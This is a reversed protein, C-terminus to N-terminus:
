ISHMIHYKELEKHSHIHGHRSDGTYHNHSHSHVITHTHTVGDHTHTFTHSHEHTHSYGLTDRVAFVAGATMVAFAVAYNLSLKEGLIVFSLFASIFPSLAYYASTKSAGLIKQAKIYTFISLGYATFGLLLAFPVYSLSSIREGKALAVALSGLGSFIGKVTVIQYASKESISRTCNNELGWCVTAGIVLFSGKSFELSGKGEFSLIISSLTILGVAVWLKGSVKEGFLLLAIVTTAVIEFNGLLSASSSSSMTIGFMLLVPALVDLVVMGVTYPLDKRDLREEAKEKPRHFIYMIGVGIGAGLYLLSALMAPPVGNLLTKSCPVNLAYFLPALVACLVAKYKEKM